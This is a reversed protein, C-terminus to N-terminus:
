SRPNFKIDNSVARRTRYDSLLSVM